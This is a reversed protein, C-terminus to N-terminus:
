SLEIFSKSSKFPHWLIALEYILIGLSWIDAKSNAENGTIWEPSMYAFTGAMTASDNNLSTM